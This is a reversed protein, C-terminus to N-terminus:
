LVVQTVKDLTTGLFAEGVRVFRRPVDTVYFQWSGKTGCRLEGSEQLLRYVTLATEEASDVMHVGDPLVMKLVPKLLPYHTCGLVLTDIGAALLPHIYERAALLAVEHQAWGEEALPVFLPCAASVTRVDPRLAQLAAVYAGSSITGETGIIGVVGGGSVRLAGVAGPAIVGVVPVDLRQQLQHLAVSSATNCAVVVMKVQRQVLFDAAEGAYMRVTDASKTGYPVRATDGLYILNEGPLLRRLQQLVTLGGVGSDFVGISGDVAVVGGRRCYFDNAIIQRNNKWCGAYFYTEIALSFAAVPM